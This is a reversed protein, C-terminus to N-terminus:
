VLGDVHLELRRKPSCLGGIVVEEQCQGVHVRGLELQIGQAAALQDARGEFVGTGTGATALGGIQLEEGLQEAVPGHDGVGGATGGNVAAVEGGGRPGLTGVATSRGPG